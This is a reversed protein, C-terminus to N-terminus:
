RPILLVPLWGCECPYEQQGAGQGHSKTMGIVGAKSACYNMQGPNGMIGSVSSINIICGGKQKLMPRAIHRM